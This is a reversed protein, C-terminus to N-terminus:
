PLWIKVQRQQRGWQLAQKHSKFFLDIKEGKIASGRDEVRGYGYGPVHMIPGFPYKGTDAAITGVKAKTGRATQGVKKPKGSSASVPRGYWNREWGCCKKCKCYGTAEVTRVIPKEGRPPKPGSACGSVVFLMLFVVVHLSYKASM